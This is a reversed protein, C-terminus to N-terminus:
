SIAAAIIAGVALLSAGTVYAVAPDEHEDTLIEGLRGPTLRDVAWFAVGLLVIGVAGYGATQTLGRDLEGGSALIASTVIAGIALMASATVIGVDRRREVVLAQGLRGPTLLDIVAFGAMMLGIGVAGYLLGALMDYALDAIDM